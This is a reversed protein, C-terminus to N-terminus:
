CEPCLSGLDSPYPLPTHEPLHMQWIQWGRATHGCALRKGERPGLKRMKLILFFFLFLNSYTTELAGAAKFIYSKTDTFRGGGRHDGTLDNPPDCAGLIHQAGKRLDALLVEGLQNSLPDSSLCVGPEARREEATLDPCTSFGLATREAGRGLSVVAQPM